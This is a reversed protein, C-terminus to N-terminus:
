VREPFRSVADEISLDPCATQLIDIDIFVFEYANKKLMGRARSPDTVKDVRCEPPFASIIARVADKDRCIVLVSEM